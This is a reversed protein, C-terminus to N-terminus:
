EAQADMTTMTNGNNNENLHVRYFGRKRARRRISVTMAGNDRRGGM